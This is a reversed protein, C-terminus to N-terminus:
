LAGALTLTIDQRGVLLFDEISEILMVVHPSASKVVNINATNIAATRQEYAANSEDPLRPESRTILPLTNMQTLDAGKCFMCGNLERIYPNGVGQNRAIALIEDENAQAFTTNLISNIM